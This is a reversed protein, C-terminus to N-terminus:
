SGARRFGSRNPPELVTFRARQNPMNTFGDGYLYPGGWQLQDGERALKEVGQYMPMVRAMEERISQTDNFPFLLEGNSMTQRGILTPIEWDPLSEGIRRGPVEPTFRIRRETSTSIGGGRQEYRTQGPLLLVAEEADLLMSNNLVLDQHLRFPVRAIAEAVFGRDGPMTGLLNGGISYFFKIEGRHAAEIMHPLTLGPVSSVPHRWLNSFRRANEEDVAFGGPFKDPESGCEGGGQASSHGRMPMIGCKERGLMGRALALNVAAELNEVGFEHQTLDMSYVFVATKANGYLGAFREMAARAVGSRQELMEWSQKELAEHLETMGSTRRAVFDNDLLNAAILAKLVGNIFAIDGGARM